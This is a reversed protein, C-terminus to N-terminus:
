LVARSYVKRRLSPYLKVESLKKELLRNEQRLLENQEELLRVRETLAHISEIQIMLLQELEEKKYRM